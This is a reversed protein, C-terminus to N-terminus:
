LVAHYRQWRMRAAISSVPLGFNSPVTSISSVINAPLGLKTGLSVTQCSAPRFFFDYDADTLPIAIQSHKMGTINLGSRDRLENPIVYTFIHVHNHGIIERGVRECHLSSIDRAGPVLGDLVTAVNVDPAVNVGVGDFGGERKEFATNQPRPMLDAGLM